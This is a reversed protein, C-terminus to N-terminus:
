DGDHRPGSRRLHGHLHRSRHKRGPAAGSGDTTAAIYSFTLSGGNSISQNYSLCIQYSTLNFNISTSAIFVDFEYTNPSVQVDNELSIRYPSLANIHNAQVTANVNNINVITPFPSTFSWTMAIPSAGFPASNVIQFTGVKLPTTSVTQSGASSAAQLNVSSGSVSTTVSLPTISMSSSSAIYSFSINGGNVITSNLNLKIGYSTLNFNAGTSVLYVDFKFTTSNLQVANELIMQYQALLPFNGSFLIIMMLLIKRLKM